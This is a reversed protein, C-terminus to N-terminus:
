RALLRRAAAGDLLIMLMGALEEAEAYGEAALDRSLWDEFDLKHSRAVDLAPHGPTDALEVAVRTFGCGKWEKSKAAKRLSQFMREIRESMPGEQGAWRRYRELTPRNRADLYAAILEDKSRFHYYVTKKTVGAREAIRDLSVERLSSGYFLEDAAAVIATRTNETARAM